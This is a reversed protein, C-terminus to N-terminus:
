KTRHIVTGFMVKTKKSLVCHECFELKNTKVGNLLDQKALTQMFKERAHGLRMHWLKTADDDSDVSATMVSTVITGKLYYLNRDRAGNMVVMSGKTIKLIGNKLTVKLEKSEVAGVSIISKNM